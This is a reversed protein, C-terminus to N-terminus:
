EFSYSFGSDAGAPSHDTRGDTGDTRVPDAPNNQDAPYEPYQCATREGCGTGASGPLFFARKNTQSSILGYQKTFTDYADSLEAQKGLIMEPHELFYNNTYLRNHVVEGDAKTFDSEHILTTQVWDPEDHILDRQRERKQFFLIDTTLDADAFTGRPLRIAGFLDCRQAIYRRARGDRKDFTGGGIGSSTIMAIVGGQRVKDISKAFFYDHILLNYKDYKRDFVKYDGFPVNGVAVDFFDDPYDTKEFGTIQIRAKPYLQKAIRGTLSDLEVGYQSLVPLTNFEHIYEFNMDESYADADLGCRTLLTYSISALLTDRLHVKMSYEDLGELFSGEALYFLDGAIEEYTDFVIRRAIELLRDAFSLEADTAGYTKELREMIATEHEERMQWLYPDRGIRRAKHVDAVDFVYKLRTFPVDEDILAIGKAGKNVWCNMKENWIDSSACATAGPRQAFILVQEQFPYKYLRAVTNLYRKWEVENKVIDKATEEALMSIYDAKRAM